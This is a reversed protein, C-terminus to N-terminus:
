LGSFDQSNFTEKPFHLNVQHYPIEIDFQDFADRVAEKLGFHLDWYNEYGTWVRLSYLIASDAFESLFVQPAPEEHIHEQQAVAHFIASKVKATSVEYSAPFVLDVRRVGSATHNVIKSSAILHNPILIQKNDVTKLKSYALGIESVEGSGQETDVYDGVVFPKSVLLQLGGALNSLTNQLALSLALGAMGLLAFISSVPIGISDAVMLILLFWLTVKATSVLYSSIAHLAKSKSLMKELMKLLYPILLAGCLLILFTRVFLEESLTGM